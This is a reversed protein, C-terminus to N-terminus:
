TAFQNKRDAFLNPTSLGLLVGAITAHVGSYLFGSWAGIGLIIYILYSTIKFYRASIILLFSAAAILLGMIKIQSTYFFAIVLVAGLDDVIALALLFVKLSLPVRSGFLTLVGLAFAIDTAMPIAWGSINPSGNNFYFYVLAPVVMGGLAASVPLAAKKITSLEGSAIERKIELGVVFFFIAMLGDNIWHQLSLFTIKTELLSFYTASASSNALVMALAACFALIIGSASETHIFNELPKRFLNVVSKKM